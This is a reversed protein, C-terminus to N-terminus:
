HTAVIPVTSVTFCLDRLGATLDAKSGQTRWRLPFDRSTEFGEPSGGTDWPYSGAPPMRNQVFRVVDVAQDILDFSKARLGSPKRGSVFPIFQQALCLLVFNCQPQELPNARRALKRGRLVQNWDPSM